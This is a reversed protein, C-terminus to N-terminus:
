GLCAARAAVFDCEEALEANICNLNDLLDPDTTGEYAACPDDSGCGDSPAEPCSCYLDMETMCADYVTTAKGPAPGCALLLLVLLTMPM